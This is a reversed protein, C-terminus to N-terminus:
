NEKCVLWPYVKEADPVQCYDETIEENEAIDRTATDTVPDYNSTNSHNMFSVLRVDPYAFREGQLVLPWRELIM